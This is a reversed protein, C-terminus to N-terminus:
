ASAFDIIQEQEDHTVVEVGTAKLRSVVHQFASHRQENASSPPGEVTFLAKNPLKDNSKLVDLAFLWSGGHDIIKSPEKHGLNLPKIIKVTKKDRQEVFPFTRHYTDDGVTTRQFRNAINAQRLLKQVGRELVTERYEKTVFNREVYYAFLEDLKLKPDTALTVRPESFRVISERERVAENFFQQGFEISQNGNNSFTHGKVMEHFRSLELNIAKMSEIYLRSDMEEFFRTIRAYRRTELKFIFNNQKSAIMVIGVNAFEGTEVYPAFRVIAYQCAIKNM